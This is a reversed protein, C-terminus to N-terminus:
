RQLHEACFTLSKSTEESQVYRLVSSHARELFATNYSEKYTVGDLGQFRFYRFGLLNADRTMEHHVRQTDTAIASLTHILSLSKNLSLLGLSSTPIDELDLRPPKKGTGLSVICRIGAVQWIRVAEDLAERSPNCYGLGCSIYPLPPQGMSIPAYYTPSAETAVAAEWLQCATALPDTRSSYSRLRIPIHIEGPHVALVFVRCTPIDAGSGGFGTHNPDLLPTDDSLGVTKLAAKFAKELANNNRQLKRGTAIVM